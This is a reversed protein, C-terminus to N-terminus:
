REWPNRRVRPRNHREIAREAARLYAEDASAADSLLAKFDAMTFPVRAVPAIQAVATGGREIVFTARGERVRDVLRGFNKAAETAPVRAPAHSRSRHPTKSV